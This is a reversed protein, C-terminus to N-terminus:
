ATLRQRVPIAPLRSVAEALLHAAAEHSMLGTNLILHYEHPDDSRSRFNQEVYHARAKDERNVYAVADRHSLGQTTEVHEVRKEFPAILRVRLVHRLNATIVNGGRGIIIANGALALRFITDSTYHLLTWSSPHAGLVEEVVDRVPQTADEKMYKQFHDPLGHEDLVRQVLNDDFVAWPRHPPSQRAELMEALLRGVTVAGAGTERSITVAPLQIQTESEHSAVESAMLYSQIKDLSPMNM